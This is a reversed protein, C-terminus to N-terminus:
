GENNLTIKTLNYKFAYLKITEYFIIDLFM